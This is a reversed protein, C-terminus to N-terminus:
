PEEPAMVDVGYKKKIWAIAAQAVAVDRKNGYRSFKEMAVSWPVLAVKATEKDHKGPSGKAVMLYYHNISYGGEFSGLYGGSVLSASVGTEERVERQAADTQSEGKDVQGKPFSWSAPYGPNAASKRIYVLRLGAPDDGAVVVGGASTWKGSSSGSPSTTKQSSAKAALVKAKHSNWAVMLADYDLAEWAAVMAQFDPDAKAEHQTHLTARLSEILSRM